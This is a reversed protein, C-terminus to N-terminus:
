RSAGAPRGATKSTVAPKLKWLRVTTDYSGSALLEGTSDMALSTVSGTHGVLNKVLSPGALRWVQIRNDSGGIALEYESLFQMCFTKAPRVPLSVSLQGTDVDWLKVENDDGGTAVLTSDPSFAVTHIRRRSAAIDFRKVGSNADWVRVVGNRGATALLQGDPSFAICTSDGCPCEIQKSIDGASLNYICAPCEYGTTAFQLGNPHFAVARLAHECPNAVLLEAGDDCRWVRCTQDAAASAVRKGDSSVSLGHIWDRHGALSKSLTGTKVDYLRVIHDDGGGALWEGNPSLALATVVATHRQSNEPESDPDGFEIVRVPSILNSEGYLPAAAWVTAAALLSQAIIARPSTRWAFTAADM